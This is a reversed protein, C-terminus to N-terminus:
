EEPPVVKVRLKLNKDQLVMRQRHEVAPVDPQRYQQEPAAATKPTQQTASGTPLAIHRSKVDGTRARAAISRPTNVRNRPQGAASAPGAHPRVSTRANRTADAIPESAASWTTIRDTPIRESAPSGDVVSGNAVSGIQYHGSAVIRTGNPAAHDRGTLMPSIFYVGVLMGALACMSGFALIGRRRSRQPAAAAGPIGATGSPVTESELLAVLRARARGSPAYTRARHKRLASEVIRYAKLTHRLERDVAVNLFFEEEEAAAMASGLYREVLREQEARNM